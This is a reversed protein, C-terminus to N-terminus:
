RHPSRAKRLLRWAFTQIRPAMDKDEWVQNLLSIIQPNVVKPRQRPPLQLNDYCHKYASKSSHHGAPTLKWVLTDQGEADIIPTQLIVNAIEPSFLSTILNENWIKQGV